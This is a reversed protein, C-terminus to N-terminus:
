GAYKMGLRAPRATAQEPTTAHNKRPTSHNVTYRGMFASNEAWADQRGAEIGDGICPCPKGLKPCRGGCSSLFIKEM